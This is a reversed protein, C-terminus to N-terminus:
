PLYLARKPMPNPLIKWSLTRLYSVGDGFEVALEVPDCEECYVPSTTNIFFGSFLDGVAASCRYAQITGLPSPRKYPQSIRVPPEGQDRAAMNRNRERSGLTQAKYYVLPAM